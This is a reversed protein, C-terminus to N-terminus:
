KSAKQQVVELINRSATLYPTFQEINENTIWLQGEGENGRHQGKSFNPNEVVEASSMVWYRILDCWVGVWIFVDCCSPKLQQFNMNFSTKSSSFLAKEILSTKKTSDVARSAKVEIRIGNFFLDYEGDYTPDLRKSPRVFEPVLETIHNEGWTGFSRPATVQFLHLYKNRTNYSEYMDRYEALSMAGLALLHSIAYQFRNFPYIFYLSELYEKRLNIDSLKSAKEAIIEDLKEM